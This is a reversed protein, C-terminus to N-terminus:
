QYLIEGEIPVAETQPVFVCILTHEASLLTAEQSSTWLPVEALAIPAPYSTVAPVSWKKSFLISASGM